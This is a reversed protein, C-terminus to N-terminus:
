GTLKQWGRRINQGVAELNAVFHRWDEGVVDWNVVPRHGDAAAPLSADADSVARGGARGGIMDYMFVVAVTLLVGLFMGFVVKMRM